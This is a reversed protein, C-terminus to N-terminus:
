AGDAAALPILEQRYPQAPVQLRRDRLGRYTASGLARVFADHGGGASRFREGQELLLAPPRDERQLCCGRMRTVTNVSSDGTRPLPARLMAFAMNGQKRRGGSAHPSFCLTTQKCM